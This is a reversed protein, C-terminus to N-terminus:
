LDSTRAAIFSYLLLPVEFFNYKYAFFWFQPQYNEIITYELYSIYLTEAKVFKIVRNAYNLSAIVNYSSYLYM